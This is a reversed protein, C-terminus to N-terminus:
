AGVAQRPRDAVLAEDGHSQRQYRAAQLLARTYPHRPDDYLQDAPGSEVIRGHRMVAIRDALARVVALDHSIFLYSVSTAAQLQRLLRIIQDQVSVDLSSVAEDCVVLSAPGAFARAIAVRQKQGGSLAAPRRDALRPDLQVQELLAEVSTTGGLLKISRSLIQRVSRRPNLSADPDQFVIQVPRRQGAPATVEVRGEHEALGAVARGLTTKGSGSEGVLALVEGQRIELDVGDVAPTRGYHKRLGSIRLVVAPRRGSVPASVPAPASAAKPRDIDPLAEILRRTYPHQPQTLVLEAPGQEVLLGDKLVGVRDCRHAVLPLNHSILLVAADLEARLQDILELVAAEIQVDLGTTPEDLILLEPRAALAMSIVVRQAQGGSLQHPYRRAIAAPDAFGVRDLLQLVAERRRGSAPGDPGAGFAEGIQPGVRKTPNLARAPEQYVMAARRGRYRRLGEGTLSLVDTRGLRISGAAVRGNAPLYRVLALAASTKGSGSEGVLGYFEGRDVTLSLDDM